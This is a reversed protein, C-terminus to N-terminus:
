GADGVLTGGLFLMAFIGAFVTLALAAAAARKLSDLATRNTRPSM